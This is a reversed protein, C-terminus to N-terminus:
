KLLSLRYIIDAAEARTIPQAPVMYSGRQPQLLTNTKAFDFYPAFWQDRKVDSYPDSSLESKIEIGATLIAVKLFEARSITSGPRFLGDAYGTVINKKVATGVYDAYWVDSPVDSFFNPLVNKELSINNGELLMKVAEARNVTGEPKFSGDSYGKIIGEEELYKISSAYKHTVPVDTFIQAQLSKSKVEGFDGRAILKFTENSSTRVKIQAVGDQFNKSTLYEPEIVAMGNLTSDIEIGNTAVLMNSNIKLQVVKEKGPIFIRDTQFEVTNDSVAKQSTKSTTTTRSPTSVVNATQIVPTKVEEQVVKQTEPIPTEEVPASSHNTTIEELIEPTNISSAVLRQSGIYNQEAVVYNIPNITYRFGNAKGVGYKVADFYSNLGAKQVDTWSFPWYPFFPADDKDLQFHLHPATAMGSDGSKAIVDGKRVEQGERVLTQSLHAYASMLTTKQSSNEPDPVGVHAIVIHRGFGSPDNAVKYVIGNAITRVPTGIPVKIDTGTHSGSKETGDLKYNGMFPVPYTIYANREEDHGRTYTLGAKIKELDYKPIPILKSKPLQDYTMTRETDSLSVWDPVMEIPPVTGTFEVQKMGVLSARFLYSYRGLFPATWLSVIILAVIGIAVPREKWFRKWKYRFEIKRSKFQPIEITHPLQDSINRKLFCIRSCRKRTNDTILKGALGLGALFILVHLLKKM